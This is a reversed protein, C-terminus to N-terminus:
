CSMIIQSAIPNSCAVGFVWQVSAQYGPRLAFPFRAHVSRCVWQNKVDCSRVRSCLCVYQGNQECGRQVGCNSLAHCGFITTTKKKVDDEGNSALIFISHNLLLNNDLNPKPQTDQANIVELNSGTVEARGTSLNDSIAQAAEM